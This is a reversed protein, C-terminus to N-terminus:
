RPDGASLDVALAHACPGRGTGHRLYWTCTCTPGNSSRRVTYVTEGSTVRWSGDAAPAVLGADAM